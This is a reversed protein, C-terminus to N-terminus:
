PGTFPSLLHSFDYPNQPIGSGSANDRQIAWISLESMGKSEAFTLLQQAAPLDTVETGKPYDDLGNMMTAGQMAWIRSNTKSPFLTKLQAHLGKSANVTAAGMDTTVGDYYDFVMPNVLDIRVGNSVANQLVALSDSGLGNANTPLTYQVQVTRGQQKAWHQLMAIAKNRRDIGAPKTLSRGEIDMDIRTVDYTTVLQEYASAISSVDACSDGIETGGQDASWGGLSPIVDAGEARLSAIDDLYRGDAVTQTKVGNWALTCSRKSTTELFALTFYKTGSADATATIGDSTWTEFYPAYVHAPTATAARAGGTSTLLTAAGVAIAAVVVRVRCTAQRRCGGDTTGGSGWSQRVGTGERLRRFLTGSSASRTLAGPPGGVPDCRDAAGRAAPSSPRCSVSRM